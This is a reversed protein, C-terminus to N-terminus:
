HVNQLNAADGTLRASLAVPSNNENDFWGCEQKLLAAFALSSNQFFDENELYNIFFQKTNVSATDSFQCGSKFVLLNSM